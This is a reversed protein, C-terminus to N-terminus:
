VLTERGDDVRRSLESVLGSEGVSGCPVNGRQAVRQEEAENGPQDGFLRDSEDCVSKREWVVEIRCQKRFGQM